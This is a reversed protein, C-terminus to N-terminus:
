LVYRFALVLEWVIVLAFGLTFFHLLNRTFIRLHRFFYYNFIVVTFVSFATLTYKAMLFPATLNVALVKNWEGLSLQNVPKNVAIAANNILAYVNDLDIKELAKIIENESSIDAQFYKIGSNEEEKENIAEGDIDMVVVKYGTSQLDEAIASGIGQAGGTVIVLKDSLQNM